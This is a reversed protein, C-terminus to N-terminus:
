PFPRVQAAIARSAITTITPRAINWLDADAAVRLGARLVDGDIRHPRRPGVHRDIELAQARHLREVRDGDGRPHVALHLAHREGLSLAHVLAIQERLDIRPRVLRGEILRDAVLAM